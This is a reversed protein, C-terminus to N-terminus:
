RKIILSKTQTQQTDQDTIRIMYIGAAIGTINLQDKESMLVKEGQATFIEIFSNDSLKQVQIWDNAPNPFIKVEEIPDNAVLHNRPEILNMSKLDGGIPYGFFAIENICATKSYYQMLRIKSTEIQTIHENWTNENICPDSFLEIWGDQSLYSFSIVNSKRIDHLFVKDIFYTQGFDIEAIFPARRNNKAPLWPLSTPHENAEPDLNQEDVLFKPSILSGRYVLDSMQNASLPIRAVTKQIASQPGLQQYATPNTTSLSFIGDELQYDIYAIEELTNNEVVLVPPIGSSNNFFRIDTNHKNDTIYLNNYENMNKIIEAGTMDILYNSQIQIPSNDLTWYRDDIFLGVASQIYNNSINIDGMGLVIIGYTSAQILINNSVDAISNGGIQLLNSQGYLGDTGANRMLNNYIAIDEVCNAIQISERGTNEIVNNYVKLHRFEMGPSKTEGIYMGETVGHIYLDHITLKNFQPIPDPPNGGFDQKALLGFFTDEGGSIEVFEVECDSSLGSLALGCENGTLQFGFHSEPDGTGTVKIYKCNKFELAGWASTQIDVQGGDNIFVIPNNESGQLGFFKLTETRNSQIKVSDGPGPAPSFTSATVYTMKATIEFTNQSFLQPAFQTLFLICVGISLSKFM